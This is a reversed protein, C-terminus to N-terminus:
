ADGDTAVAVRGVEPGAVPDRTVTEDSGKGEIADSGVYQRKSTPIEENFVVCNKIRSIERLQNSHDASQRNSGVHDESGDVERFQRVDGGGDRKTSVVIVKFDWECRGRGWDTAKHHSSRELVRVKAIEPL